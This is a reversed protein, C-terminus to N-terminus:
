DEVPHEAHDVVIYEIPGKRAELKLGLQEQVATFISPSESPPREVGPPGPLGPLGEPTFHLEVDFAGTLGTRDLVVRDVLMSLTFSLDAMTMAGGKLTGLFSVGSGCPDPGGAFVPANRRSARIAGCDLDSRRLQPGLKRDRRALVLAYIAGDKTENHLSLNFRQALLTRLMLGKTRAGASGTMNDAAKAIVNFRDSNMWNPGGSIRYNPIPQPPPGPQGYALAILDRL